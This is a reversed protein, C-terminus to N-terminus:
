EREARGESWAQKDGGEDFVAIAQGGIATRGGAREARDDEGNRPRPRTLSAPVRRGHVNRRYLAGPRGDAGRGDIVVIAKTYSTHLMYRAGENRMIFFSLSRSEYACWVGTEGRSLLARRAWFAEPASRQGEHRRRGGAEPM